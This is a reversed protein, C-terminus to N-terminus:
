RAAPGSVCVVAATFAGLRVAITELRGLGDITPCTTVTVKLTVPVVGGVPVTVTLALEPWLQKAVSGVALQVSVKGAEPLGVRVAL